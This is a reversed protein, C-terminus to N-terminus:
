LFPSPLAEEPAMNLQEFSFFIFSAIYVDTNKSNLLAM